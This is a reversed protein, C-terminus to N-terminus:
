KKKDKKESKVFVVVTEAIPNYDSDTVIIKCPGAKLLKKSVYRGCNWTTKWKGAEDPKPEPKLAYGIDSPVGVKSDNILLKIEQGPKFGSGTIVAKAKKHIKVSPTEMSVKPGTEGAICAQPEFAATAGLSMIGLVFFLIVWKGILRKM